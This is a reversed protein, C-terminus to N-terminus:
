LASGGQLNGAELDHLGSLADKLRGLCFLRLVVTLPYHYVAPVYVFMVLDRACRLAM